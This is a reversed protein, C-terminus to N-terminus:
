VPVAFVLFGPVPAEGWLSLVQYRGDELLTFPM